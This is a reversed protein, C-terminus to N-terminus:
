KPRAGLVSLLLQRVRNEELLRFQNHDGAWRGWCCGTAKNRTMDCNDASIWSYFEDQIPTLGRLWPSAGLAKYAKLHSCGSGASVNVFDLVGDQDM